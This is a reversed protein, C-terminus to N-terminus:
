PRAIVHRTVEAIPETGRTFHWTRSLIVFDEFGAQRGRKQEAGSISLVSTIEDGDYCPAHFTLEAGSGLIRTFGPLLVDHGQEGDSVIGDSRLEDLPVMPHCVNVIFAPPMIVDAYGHSRAFDSDFYLPNHDRAAIAWRQFLIKHVIGMKAPGPRGIAARLADGILNPRQDNEAV